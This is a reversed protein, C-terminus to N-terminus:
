INGNKVIKVIKPWHQRTLDSLIKMSTDYHTNLRFDQNPRLLTLVRKLSMLQFGQALCYQIMVIAYCRLLKDGSGTDACRAASQKGRKPAAVVVASDIMYRYRNLVKLVVADVADWKLLKEKIWIRACM